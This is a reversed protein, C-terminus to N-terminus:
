PQGFCFLFLTGTLVSFFCRFYQWVLLTPLMRLFLDLSGGEKEMLGNLAPEHSPRFREFGEKFINTSIQDCLLVMLGLFVVTMFGKIGQNKFIAYVIMVYMPVWISKSTILWFINDLLPSTFSNLYLLLEQDLQILTEM